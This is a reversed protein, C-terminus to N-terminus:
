IKSVFHCHSIATEEILKESFSFNLNVSKCEESNGPRYTEETVPISLAQYMNKYDYYRLRNQPQICNDIRRWKKESYKLFNYITISKDFHAFHDSMDISHSMLGNEKKVVRIFDSLISNLISPYIHEFTNNSHVLDVSCDPLSLKRADEVLYTINLRNLITQLDLKDYESVLKLLLSWREPFVKILASLKGNEQSEIFKDLTIKIRKKSTLFSLDVSFIKDTGALFFATPVVPYWGTGIELSSEPFDKNNYKKYYSLHEGAHELRDYFYDDTLRVGKTVYKQFFFNVRNRFPLYSITKQIVAKLIWKKM